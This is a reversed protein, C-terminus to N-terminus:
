IPLELIKFGIRFFESSFDKMRLIDREYIVIDIDVPVNGAARAESDRGCTLEYEKCLSELTSSHLKTKGIAVANLYERQGGHCDPTAYIHSHRFDMLIGSLWKLAGEVNSLRDGCNSGICLVTEKFSPTM